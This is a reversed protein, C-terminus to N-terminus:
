NMNVYYDRGNFSIQHLGGKEGRVYAFPAISVDYIRYKVYIDILMEPKDIVVYMDGTDRYYLAENSIDNHYRYINTDGLYERGLDLMYVAKTYTTFDLPTTILNANMVYDGFIASDPEILNCYIRYTDSVTQISKGYIDSKRGSFLINTINAYMDSFTFSEPLPENTIMRCVADPTKCMAAYTYNRHIVYHSVIGDRPKDSLMRIVKDRLSYLLEASGMYMKCVDNVDGIMNDNMDNRMEGIVGNVDSRGSGRYDRMEDSEGNSINVGGNVDGRGSVVFPVNFIQCPRLM